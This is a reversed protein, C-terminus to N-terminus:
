LMPLLVLESYLRDIDRAAVSKSRFYMRRPTRLGSPVRDGFLCSDVALGLTRDRAMVALKIRELYRLLLEPPQCYLVVSVPLLKCKIKIRKTIIYVYRDRKVVFVHHNCPYAAHDDYIRRDEESLVSRAQEGNRVVRVRGGALVTAAHQLPPLWVTQTELVEFGTREMLPYVEPSPSFNTFTCGKRRLLALLLLAGGGRYEPRVFWSTLNCFLEVRGRIVRRSYVAGFFGVIEDGIVLVYGLDPKDEMWRYDFLGRWEAVSIQPNFEEHLFRCIRDIRQSEVSLLRLLGGNDGM